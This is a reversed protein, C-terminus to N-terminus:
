PTFYRGYRSNTAIADRQTSFAQSLEMVETDSVLETVIEFRSPIPRWKPDPIPASAGNPCLQPDVQANILTILTFSLITQCLLRVRQM